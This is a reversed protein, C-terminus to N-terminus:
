ENVTVPITIARRCTQYKQAYPCEAGADYCQVTIDFRIADVKTQTYGSFSVIGYTDPLRQVTGDDWDVTGVGAFKPKRIEVGNTDRVTQGNCIASGDYRIQVKQGLSVKVINPSVTIQKRFGELYTPDIGCACGAVQHWRSFQITQNVPFRTYKTTQAFLYGVTGFLLILAVIGYKNMM